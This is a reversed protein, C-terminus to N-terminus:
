FLVIKCMLVFQLTLFRKFICFIYKVITNFLLPKEVLERRLSLFDFLFKTIWSCIQHFFLYSLMVIAFQSCKKRRTMSNLSFFVYSHFGVLDPSIQGFFTVSGAHVSQYQVALTIHSIHRYICCRFITTTTKLRILNKWLPKFSFNAKITQFFILKRNNM